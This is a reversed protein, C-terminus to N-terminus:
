PDSADLTPIVHRLVEITRPALTLSKGVPGGLAARAAVSAGAFLVRPKLDAVPVWTLRSFGLLAEPCNLLSKDGDKIYAASMFRALNNYMEAVCEAGPQLRLTYAFSDLVRVRADTTLLSQIQAATGLLGMAAAHGARAATEQPPLHTRTATPLPMCHTDLDSAIETWTHACPGTRRFGLLVMVEGDERVLYPVLHTRSSSPHAGAKDVRRRPEKEPRAKAETEAEVDVDVDVDAMDDM